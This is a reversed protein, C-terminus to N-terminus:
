LGESLFKRLSLHTVGEFDSAHILPTASIVYKPYSDPINLLTGFERERTDDSAIIYAVQVYVKNRNGKVSKSSAGTCVFDIEGARLQGVAVKYGLRVLHQYVVNEIVKEIDKEREGGIIYNRLGVDGFYTKGSTELLRKGHIDYRPVNATLYAESFYSSYSLVVNASIDEGLSKLYKAISSASNLKGINDALFAILNHLFPINRIKHREVIDKLMITNFVGSLYENVMDENDFGISRLGPLGGYTLYKWLTDDSDTLNHFMMFETYSLSQIHIEVYRGALLTSLESSLMKSNSGTVVIDTNDETRYSRVTHEWGEIDQVEDILIYNHKGKQFQKAIYDDLENRGTIFKFAIKEKDIYIINADAEQQHRMVFDKMVYSKGVRRQGTIVIIQEKGIWSDIQAAYTERPIIQM